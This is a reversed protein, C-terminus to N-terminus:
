SGWRVPGGALPRCPPTAPWRSLPTPSPWSLAPFAWPSLRGCWSPKEAAPLAVGPPHPGKEGAPLLPGVAGVPVPLPHHGPGGGAGGMHFVFIFIPDLVINTVAGIAVTMMGKRGFGQANIFQNMGLSVMVFLSGCLYITLYGDAYPYTVDSAGFAYLLPRKILLLVATLVAGTGILLAFTNGM